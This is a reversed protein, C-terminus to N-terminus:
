PVIIDVSVNRTGSFDGIRISVITTLEYNASGLRVTFGQLLDDHEDFGLCAPATRSRAHIDTILAGAPINLTRSPQANNAFEEILTFPQM